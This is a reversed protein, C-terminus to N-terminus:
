FELVIKGTPMKRKSKWKPGEKIAKIAESDLDSNLSKDVTINHPTGNKDIYFSLEIKGHINNFKVQQPLLLNNALYTDYNDWGDEPVAYNSSDKMIDMMTRQRVAAAKSVMVQALPQTSEKLMIKNVGILGRQLKYSNSAFGVSMVDVELVTDPAVFSFNGKVDAYTGIKFSDNKIAIRAFPLPENKTDVIRGKFINQSYNASYNKTEFDAQPKGPNEQTSILGASKDKNLIAVPKKELLKYEQAKTIGAGDNKALSNVSPSPAAVVDASINVSDKVKFVKNNAAIKKSGSNEKETIASARENTLTAPNNAAVSKGTDTITTLPVFSDAPAKVREQAINQTGDLKESFMYKYIIAASGLMIFLVAAIRYWQKWNGKMEVVKGGATVKETIEKKLSSIIKTHNEDAMLSYGEVADALFEDDLSAKELEHMEVPTMKGQLYRQIDEATYIKNDNNGPLM